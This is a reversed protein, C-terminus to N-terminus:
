RCSRKITVHRFDLRSLKQSLRNVVFLHWNTGDFVPWLGTPFALSGPNGLNVVAPVGTITAGFDLRILNGTFGNNTFAYWNGAENFVFLDQPNLLLGGLNGLDVLTPINTLSNGFDLRVIDETQLQVEM